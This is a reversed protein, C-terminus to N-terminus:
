HRFPGSTFAHVGIGIERLRNEARRSGTRLWLDYIRLIDANSRLACGDHVDSLAVVFEPFKSSLENFIARFASEGSNGRMAGSLYGYANSGMAIYYDVDILRRQLSESFLGAIFLAVDGLRRVIQNRRDAQPIELAEAYMLALPKLELGEGTQEFLRDSRQYVTLLNVIYYVTEVAADVGRTNLADGVAHHFYERLDTGAILRESGAHGAM